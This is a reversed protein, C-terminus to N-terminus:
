PLQYRTARREGTKKLQGEDVMEKLVRSLTNSSIGRASLSLQDGIYTAGMDDNKRLAAVIAERDITGSRRTPAQRGRVTEGRLIALAGSLRAEQDKLDDFGQLQKRVEALESELQSEASM